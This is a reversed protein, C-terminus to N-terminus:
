IPISVPKIILFNKNSNQHLLINKPKIKSSTGTENPDVPETVILTRFTKIPTSKNNILPLLAEISYISTNQDIDM